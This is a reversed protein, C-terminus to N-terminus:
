TGAINNMLVGNPNHTFSTTPFFVGEKFGKIFGVNDCDAVITFQIIIHQMAGRGNLNFLKTGKGPSSLTLNFFNGGSSGTFLEGSAAAYILKDNVRNRGIITSGNLNIKSELLVTGNVEYVTNSALTIVGAVPKPFDSASRVIVYHSELSNLSLVPSWQSGYWFYLGDAVKGGKSYVMYDSSVLQSLPESQKLNNIKVIVLPAQGKNEMEMFLGPKWCTKIQGKVIIIALLLGIFLASKRKM